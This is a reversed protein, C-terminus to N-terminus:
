CWVSPCLNKSGFVMSMLTIAGVVDGGSQVRHVVMHVARAYGGSAGETGDQEFCV